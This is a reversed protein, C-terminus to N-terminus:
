VFMNMVLNHEGGMWVASLFKCPLPHFHTFPPDLFQGGLPQGVAAVAL